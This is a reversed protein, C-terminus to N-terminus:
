LLKEVEEIFDKERGREIYGGASFRHGGGSGGVVKSATGILNGMDINKGRVRGSIKIQEGDEALGILPGSLINSSLCISTVTGIIRPDIKDKALIYNAKKKVIVKENDLNGYVWDLAEGIKRKYHETVLKAEELARLDGLCLSIGLDFRDTRGTSNLLTAFERLDLGNDLIFVKGVLNEVRYEGLTRALLSDVLKEREQQTLDSITRWRGNEKLKIGLESLFQVAGSESNSIGPIFPDTCLELARHIPRTRGGYLKLGIEERVAGMKIAEQLFEKNKGVFGNTEQLDGTAGVLALHVLDKNIPNLEKAFLYAVGAGSIEKDGDLGLKFANVDIFKPNGKPPHHDLVLVNKLLNLLEAQGSGIDSFILFDEKKLREIVKPTIQKVVSFQFRIKERVLAKALIGAAALGDADLHTVCKVVKQSNEKLLSIAEDIM